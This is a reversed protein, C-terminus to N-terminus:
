KACDNQLPHMLQPTRQELVSTKFLLQEGQFQPVCVYYTTTNTLQKRILHDKDTM